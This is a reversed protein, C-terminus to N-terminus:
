SKEEKLNYFDGAIRTGEENLENELIKRVSGIEIFNAIKAMGKFYITTKVTPYAGFYFQIDQIYDSDTILAMRIGKCVTENSIFSLRHGLAFIQFHDILLKNGM